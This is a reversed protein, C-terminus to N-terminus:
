HPHRAIAHCTLLAAATTSGLVKGDRVLGPVREIPVWEVVSHIEEPDTAEGVHTAGRWLYAEAPARVQGPLPDLTCLHEPEGRVQWGTEETLERAAAAAPTEGPDIMGGPTEYGWKDVPFRYKWLLLVRDDEDVVVAIAFASLEVVHYDFREGAPSEVDVLRVGVWPDDFAAREGHITWGGQEEPM